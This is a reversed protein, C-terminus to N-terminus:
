RGRTIRIRKALEVFTDISHTIVIVDDNVFGYVIKVKGNEDELVRLDYNKFVMDKFQENIQAVPLIDKGSQGPILFVGLDSEMTSEWNLMAAFAYHYSKTSFILFPDRGKETVRVGIMYDKQLSDIFSQPYNTYLMKVLDKVDKRKFIGTKIDKEVLELEIVNGLVSSLESSDRAAALVNLIYARPKETIDIRVRDEIFLLKNILSQAEPSITNSAEETKLPKTLNKYYVYAIFISLAFFLISFIFIVLALNFASMKDQRKRQRAEFKKRDSELAVIKTISLKNQKVIDQVDAKYTRIIGPKRSERKSFFEEEISEDLAEGTLLSPSQDTNNQKSRNLRKKWKLLENKGKTKVIADAMTFVAPKKAAKQSEGKSDQQKNQNTDSLAKNVEAEKSTEKKNESLVQDLDVREFEDDEKKEEKEKQLKEEYPTLSTLKKEEEEKNMFEMEVGDDLSLKKEEQPLEAYLPTKGPANEKKNQPIIEVGESPANSASNVQGDQQEGSDAAPVEKEEIFKVSELAKEDINNPNNKKKKFFNFMTNNYWFCRM